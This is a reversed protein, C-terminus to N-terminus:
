TKVRDDYQQRAGDRIDFLYKLQNAGKRHIEQREQEWGQEVQSGSLEVRVIYLAVLLHGPLPGDAGLFIGIQNLARVGLEKKAHYREYATKRRPEM